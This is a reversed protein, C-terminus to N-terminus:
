AFYLYKRALQKKTAKGRYRANPDRGQIRFRVKYNDPTTEKPDLKVFGFTMSGLDHDIVRRM